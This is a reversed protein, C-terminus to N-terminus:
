TSDLIMACRCLLPGLGGPQFRGKKSVGLARRSGILSSRSRVTSNGSFSSLVPSNIIVKM